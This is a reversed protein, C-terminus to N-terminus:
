GHPEEGRGGQRVGGKMTELGTDHKEGPGAGTADDEAMLELVVRARAVANSNPGAKGDAVRRYIAAAEERRGQRYLTLALNMAAVVSGPDRELVSRYRLEAEALDGRRLLANALRLEVAPANRTGAMLDRYLQIAKGYNEERYHRQALGALADISPRPITRKFLFALVVAGVCLAFVAIATTLVGARHRELWGLPASMRLSDPFRPRGAAAVVALACPVADAGAADPEAARSLDQPLRGTERLHRQLAAGVAQDLKVTDYEAGHRQLAPIILIQDLARVPPTRADEEWRQWLAIGQDTRLAGGPAILRVLSARRPEPLGPLLLPTVASFTLREIFGGGAYRDVYAHRAPNWFFDELLRQLKARRDPLADGNLTKRPSARAIEVMADIEGLLFVTLDAAALGVDFTDGVFAQAASSWGPPRDPNPNFHDLAWDVYERLRPAIFDLFEPEMCERWAMAAAQAVLPWATARSSEAGESWVQGPISGDARQACLASKVLEAAVAPDVLRWASVLPLLLNNDMIERGSLDPTSWRFGIAGAPPRLQLALQELAHVAVPRFADAVAHREWFPRRRRLAADFFEAPDRDLHFRAASVAAAHDDPDVALCFRRPTRARDLLLAVNAGPVQLWETDATRKVPFEPSFLSPMQPSSTEGLVIGPAPFVCTLADSADPPGYFLRFGDALGAMTEPKASGPFGAHLSWPVASRLPALDGPAPLARFLFAPAGAEHHTWACVGFRLHETWDTRAASSPSNPEM